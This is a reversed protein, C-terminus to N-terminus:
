TIDILNSNVFVIDNSTNIKELFYEGNQNRTFVCELEYLYSKATDSMQNILEDSINPFEDSLAEYVGEAHVYVSFSDLKTKLLTKIETEIKLQEERLKQIRDNTQTADM